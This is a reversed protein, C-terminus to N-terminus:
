SLLTEHANLALKLLGWGWANEKGQRTTLNIHWLVGSLHEADGFFFSIRDGCGM